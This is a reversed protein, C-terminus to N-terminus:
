AEAIRWLTIIINHRIASAYNNNYINNICLQIAMSYITAAFVFYLFPSSAAGSLKNHYYDMKGANLWINIFIRQHLYKLFHAPLLV